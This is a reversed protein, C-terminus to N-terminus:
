ENLLSSEGLSNEYWFLFAGIKAKNLQFNLTTMAYLVSFCIQGGLDLVSGVRVDFPFLVSM